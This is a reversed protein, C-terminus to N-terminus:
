YKTPWVIRTKGPLVNSKTLTRRHFVQPKLALESVLESGLASIIKLLVSNFHPLTSPINHMLSKLQFYVLFRRKSFM